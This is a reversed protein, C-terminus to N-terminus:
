ATIGLDWGLNFACHDCTQERQLRSAGGGRGESRGAKGGDRGGRPFIDHDGQDGSSCLPDGRGRGPQTLCEEPLATASPMRGVVRGRTSVPLPSILLSSGAITIALCSKRSSPFLTPAGCGPRHLPATPILFPKRLHRGDARGCVHACVMWVTVSVGRSCKPVCQWVGMNDGAHM